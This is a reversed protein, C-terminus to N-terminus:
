PRMFFSFLFKVNSIIRSININANTKNIGIFRMISCGNKMTGRTTIPPIYMFLFIFYLIFTQSFIM